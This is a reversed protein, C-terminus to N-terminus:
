FGDLSFLTIKRERQRSKKAMLRTLAAATMGRTDEDDLAIILDGASILGLMPSTSKLSHVCPGDKSTDVVIGIPGSPAYVDYTGPRGIATSLTTKDSAYQAEVSEALPRAGLTFGLNQNASFSSVRVPKNLRRLDSSAGHEPDGNAKQSQNKQYQNQSRSDNKSSGTNTSDDAQDMSRAGMTVEIADTGANSGLSGRESAENYVPSPIKRAQQKQMEQQKQQIQAVAQRVNNGNKPSTNYATANYSIKSDPKKPIKPRRPDSKRTSPGPRQNNFLASAAESNRTTIESFAYTEQITPNTAIEELKISGGTESLRGGGNSSNRGAFSKGINFLFSSSGNSGALSSMPTGADFDSQYETGKSFFSIPLTYQGDDATDHLFNPNVTAEDTIVGAKTSTATKVEGASPKADAIKSHDENEPPDFRGATSAASFKSVNSYNETSQRPTMWKKFIQISPGGGLGFNTGCTAGSYGATVCGKELTNPSQLPLNDDDIEDDFGGPCKAGRPTLGVSELSKEDDQPMAHRSTTSVGFPLIGSADPMYTIKDEDESNSYTPHLNDNDYAFDKDYKNSRRKGNKQKALHRRIAFWSAVIAIGFAILSFLIAIVFPAKSVQGQDGTSEPQYNSVTRLPYFFENSNGLQWLYQDFNTEFGYESVEEFKFGEPVRGSTVVGVTRFGVELAVDWDSPAFQLGRRTSDSAESETGTSTTENSGIVSHVVNQTLVTVALIDIEYGRTNPQAQRIFELTAIEFRALTFEDM